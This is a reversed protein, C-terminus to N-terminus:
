HKTPRDTQRDTRLIKNQQSFLKKTSELRRKMKDEFGLHRHTRRSQGTKIKEEKKKKKEKKSESSNEKAVQILKSANTCTRPKM